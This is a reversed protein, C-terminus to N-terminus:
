LMNVPDVDLSARTTGVGEDIAQSIALSVARLARRQPGKLMFRYRYRGRLRGIPAPAPGLVELQEQRAEPQARALEALREAVRRAEAEEIADIRV